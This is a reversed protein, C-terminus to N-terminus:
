VDIVKTSNDCSFIALRTMKIDQLSGNDNTLFLLRFFLEDFHYSSGGIMKHSKGITFIGQLVRVGTGVRTRINFRFIDICFRGDM